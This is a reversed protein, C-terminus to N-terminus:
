PRGSSAPAGSRPWCGSRGRCPAGSSSRRVQAAQSSPAEASRRASTSCASRLATFRPSAPASAAARSRCCPPPRPRPRGNRVGGPARDAAADRHAEHQAARRPRRLLQQDVDGHVEHLRAAAGGGLHELQLADRQGGRPLTASCARTESATWVVRTGRGPLWATSTITLPWARRAPAKWTVAAPSPRRAPTAEIRRSRSVTCDRCASRRRGAAGQWWRRVAPGRSRPCDTRATRRSPGPGARPSSSRRGPRHRCWLAGLLGINLPTQAVGQRRGVSSAAM